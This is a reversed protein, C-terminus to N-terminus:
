AYWAEVEKRLEGHMDVFTQATHEETSMCQRSGEKLTPPVFYPEQSIGM